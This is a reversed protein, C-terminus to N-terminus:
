EPDLLKRMEGPPEQAQLLNPPTNIELYAIGPHLRIEGHRM